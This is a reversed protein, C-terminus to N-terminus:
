INLAHSSFFVEKCLGLDNMHFQWMLDQPAFFFRLKLKVGNPGNEDRLITYAVVAKTLLLSSYAFITNVDAYILKRWCHAFTNFTRKIQLVKRYIKFCHKISRDIAYLSISHFIDLSACVSREEQNGFFILSKNDAIRMQALSSFIFQIWLNVCM